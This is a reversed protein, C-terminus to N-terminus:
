VLERWDLSAGRDGHLRLAQLAFLSSWCNRHREPAAPWYLTSAGDEHRETSEVLAQAADALRSPALDLLVALRVAQALVDSQRHDGAPGGTLHAYTTFGGDALQQEWVWATITRARDLAAADGRATGWMWLGEAAYCSAHLSILDSEPCTALPASGPRAGTADAERVLQEAAGAAGEVGHEAASLLAQLVKLLHARGTTSWAPRPAPAGEPTLLTPLVGDTRTDLLLRAARRGAALIREDGTRAGFTLLGHTIMGLDFPFVTGDGRDPRGSLDGRDFRDILWDAASRARGLDDEDAANYAFFTLIYGTIEPYHYSLEGEATRWGCYAGNEARTGGRRLWDTLAAALETFRNPPALPAATATLHNVTM